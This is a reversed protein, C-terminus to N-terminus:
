NSSKFKTKFTTGKGLFSEVEIQGGNLKIFEYSLMLGLGTGKEGATGDRSQNNKILFLKDILKDSIGIGNDSISIEINGDPLSKVSINVSGDKNTFKIANNVINRIIFEIQNKDGIITLSDDIFCNVNIGKSKGVEKYVEFINSVIEKVQILQPKYEMQNMQIRAWTILNDAMKITNDVSRNLEQSMEMIEEKSLSDYYDILLTSFGKLSNLPSKFDHAVISFFKDKTANLIELHHNQSEIIASQAKIKSIDTAIGLVGYITNNENRLTTGALQVPYNTGDKKIYTWERTESNGLKASELFVDCDNIQRGLELSLEKGRQVVESELHFLAPTMKGIVETSSYGLQSEAGKNFNTIVGNLDTAIISVLTSDFIARLEQNREFVIKELDENIRKLSDEAIIRKADTKDLSTATPLFLFLGVLIFSISFLAIGFEVDVLGRRHSEIRLFSLFLVSIVLRPFLKKTITSGITKGVFIRTIGLTPNLLSASISILFLTAATHFAIASLFSLQYFKPINLFYGVIAIFSIISILHLIYQGIIKNSSKLILFSLGLLSFCLSTINAMRGPNLIGKKISEYDTFIMQDIGINFNFIDQFFSALSLLILIISLVTSTKEGKATNLLYLTCGTIAFCFAANFKMSVYGAVVTKLIEINFVWGLTVAISLLITYICIISIVKELKM